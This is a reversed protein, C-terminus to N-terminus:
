DVIRMNSVSMKTPQNIIRVDDNMQKSGELSRLIMQKNRLNNTNNNNCNYGHEELWPPANTSSSVFLETNVIYVRAEGRIQKAPGEM